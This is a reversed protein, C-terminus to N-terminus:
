LSIVDFYLMTFDDTLKRDDHWHGCYWHTFDVSHYVYDLFGTLEIDHVDPTKGYRIIQSRPMTHTIVYDVKMGVKELNASAEKYEENTPTEREWWSYGPTRMYKDISYAGGMTFFTKGQIEFVQGRMLHYINKRIRHVKGGCFTQEPYDYIANFNEHNGDVFLITYPRNELDDLFRNESFDNLFIYGFDGCVILYDNATLSKEWDSYLFRNQEGHTDGTVYIM